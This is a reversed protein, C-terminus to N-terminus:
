RCMEDVAAIFCLTPVDPLSGLPPCTICSPLFPSMATLVTLPFVLRLTLGCRGHGIPQGPVRDRVSRQFARVQGSWHAAQVLEQAVLAILVGVAVAMVEWGVSPWGHPPKLLVM